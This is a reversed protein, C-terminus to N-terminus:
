RRARGSRTCVVRDFGINDPPDRGSNGCLLRTSGPSRPTRDQAGRRATRAFPVDGSRWTSSAVVARRVLRRCATDSCTCARHGRAQAVRRRADGDDGAAAIRQDNPRRESARRASVRAPEADAVVLRHHEDREDDVFRLLREVHEDVAVAARASLVAVRRTIAPRSPARRRRDLPLDTVALRRVIHVQGRLGCRRRRGGRRRRTNTSGDRRSPIRARHDLRHRELHRDDGACGWTRSTVPSCAANSVGTSSAWPKASAIHRAEIVALFRLLPHCEACARKRSCERDCFREVSSRRRRPCASDPRPPSPLPRSRSGHESTSIPGLWTSLRAARSLCSPRASGCSGPRRRRCRSLVHRSDPSCATAAVRREDDRTWREPSRDSEAAILTANRSNMVGTPMASAPTTGNTARVADSRRERACGSCRTRAGASRPVRASLRVGYKWWSM